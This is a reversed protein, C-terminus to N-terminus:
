ERSELSQIGGSELIRFLWTLLVNAESVISTFLIPRPASLRCVPEPVQV